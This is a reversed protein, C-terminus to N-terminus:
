HLPLTCNDVACICSKIVYVTSESVIAAAAPECARKEYLSRALQSTPEAVSRVCHEASQVLGERRPSNAGQLLMSSSAMPPFSAAIDAVPSLVLDMPPDQAPTSKGSGDSSPNRRHLPLLSDPRPRVHDATGSLPSSISITNSSQQEPPSPSKKGSARCHHGDVVQVTSSPKVSRLVKPHVDKATADRSKSRTLQPITAERETATVERTSNQTCREDTSAAVKESPSNNKSLLKAYQVFIQATDEKTQELEPDDM